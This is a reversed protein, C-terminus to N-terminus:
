KQSESIKKWYKFVLEFSGKISSFESAVPRPEPHDPAELTNTDEPDTHCNHAAINM